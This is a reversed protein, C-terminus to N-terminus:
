ALQQTAEAVIEPAQEVETKEEAVETMGEALKVFNQEEEAFDNAVLSTATASAILLASSLKM